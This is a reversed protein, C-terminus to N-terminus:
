KHSDPKNRCDALIAPTYQFRGQYFSLGNLFRGRAEPSCTRVLDALAVFTTAGRGAAHGPVAAPLNGCNSTCRSGKRPECDGAQEVESFQASALKGDVLVLSELFRLRSADSCAGLGQSDNQRSALASVRGADKLTRSAAPIVQESVKRSAEELSTAAAASIGSPIIFAIALLANKM